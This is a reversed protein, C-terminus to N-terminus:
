MYVLHLVNLKLFRYGRRLRIAWSMQYLVTLLGCSSGAQRQKKDSYEGDAVDSRGNNETRFSIVWQGHGVKRRKRDSFYEGNAVNSRGSSGARSTSMMPGRTRDAVTEQGIVISVGM